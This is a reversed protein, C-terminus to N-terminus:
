SFNDLSLVSQQKLCLDLLLDRLILYPEGNNMGRWRSGAPLDYKAMIAINKVLKPLCLITVDQISPAQVLHPRQYWAVKKRNKSVTKDKCDETKPHTLLIVPSYSLYLPLLSLQM